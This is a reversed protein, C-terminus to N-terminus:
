EDHVLRTFDQWSQTLRAYRRRTDDSELWETLFDRLERVAEAGIQAAKLEL